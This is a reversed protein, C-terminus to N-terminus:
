FTGNVNEEPGARYIGYIRRGIWGIPRQDQWLHWEQEEECSGDNPILKNECQLMQPDWGNWHVRLFSYWHAVRNGRSSEEHLM